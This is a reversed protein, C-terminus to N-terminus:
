LAAWLAIAGVPPVNKYRKIKMMGEMYYISDTM